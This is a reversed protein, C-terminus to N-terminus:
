CTLVRYMEVLKGPLSEVKDIFIFHGRGFMHGLYDHASKDITICFVRVGAGRAELIAKRTDEIAYEGKYDDYDEPKGDTFVILLRIRGDVALMKKTMHRIPPGMRTYEKPGMGIIREKVINSYSETIEKVPFVESKSRRMGSFGYIAYPDGVIDMAEAMLILSEKVATGVWGETSNSMDVLFHTSIERQDRLLRLFLRDSPVLGARHDGLTDVLADFDIDDGHRRRRIFRHQNRLMEFQRRIRHLTGGYKYLTDAVFSSKARSISKEYLTCWNQRYGGRRYDWEDYSHADPGPNPECWSNGSHPPERKNVGKGAMGSAAQVYADPLEGLDEEIDEILDKLEDSLEFEGNEILLDDRGSPEAEDETAVMLRTGEAKEEMQKVKDQGAIEHKKENKTIANAMLSIFANKEDIRRKQIVASASHFSFDGLVMSFQGFDCGGNKNEFYRYLDPLLDFSSESATRKTLWYLPTDIDISVAGFPSQLLLMVGDYFEHSGETASMDKLIHLYLPKASRILGPLRDRLWHVSSVTQVVAFLTRARTPHAYASFNMCESNVEVGVLLKEFIRSQVHAWQLSILFKYLLSNEAQESFIDLVPPMFIKQTDTYPTKAAALEIDTGSVGRLYLLMRALIDSFSVGYRGEMPGLFLRDPDAMFRRSAALGGTEYLSLIRRTWQPFKDKPILSACRAGDELFAFCLSHSVPWIVPVQELLLNGRSESLELLGELVEEVEWENPLSPAVVRMFRKKLSELQM